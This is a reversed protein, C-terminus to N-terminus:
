ESSTSSIMEWLLPISPNVVTSGLSSTRDKAVVGDTNVIQLSRDLVIENGEKRSVVRLYGVIDFFGALENKLKGPISPYVKKKGSDTVEEGLHASVITHCPLDRYARVIMRMRDGSKGWERPSPVYIDTTDPRKSHQEQMVTRMDLKQLETITDIAVTKYYGSTDNVLEKHVDELQKMTRVQIVDVNARKRITTVGGDVDLILMPNTDPHDMATGILHTKGAGPEGYLLLSIFSVSEEPPKVNLKERLTATM